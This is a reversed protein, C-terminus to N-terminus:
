SKWLEGKKLKHSHYQLNLKNVLLKLESKKFNQRVKKSGTYLVTDFEGKGTYDIIQLVMEENPDIDEPFYLMTGIDIVVNPKSM